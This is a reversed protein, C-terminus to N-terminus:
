LKKSGEAGDKVTLIKGKGAECGSPVDAEYEIDDWKKWDRSLINMGNMFIYQERYYSLCIYAILDPIIYYTINEFLLQCQRILDFLTDKTKNDINKLQRLDVTEM